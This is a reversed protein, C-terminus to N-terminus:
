SSEAYPFALAYRQADRDIIEVTIESLFDLVGPM